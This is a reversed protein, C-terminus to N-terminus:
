SWPQRVDKGVHEMLASFFTAPWVWFSRSELVWHNPWSSNPWCVATGTQEDHKSPSALNRAQPSNYVITRRGWSCIWIYIEWNYIEIPEILVLFQSHIAILDCFWLRHMYSVPAKRALRVLSRRNRPEEPFDVTFRYCCICKSQDLLNKAVQNLDM